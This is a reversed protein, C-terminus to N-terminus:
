RVGEAAASHMLAERLRMVLRPAAEPDAPAAEFGDPDDVFGMTWADFARATVEAVELVAVATHREDMQIREFIEEVAAPPGELVQAFHKNSLMMAGTVRMAANNRRATALIADLDDRSTTLARSVYTVRRLVQPADTM